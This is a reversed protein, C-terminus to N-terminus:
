PRGKGCCDRWYRKVAVCGLGNLEEVPRRRQQNPTLSYWAIDNEGMEERVIGEEILARVGDVLGPRNADRGGTLVDFSFKTQPHRSLFLLVELKSFTNGHEELFRLLRDRSGMQKSALVTKFRGAASKGM